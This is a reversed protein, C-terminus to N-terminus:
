LHEFYNRLELDYEDFSMLDNHQGGLIKILQAKPQLQKLHESHSVPILHDEAGHILLIPATVKAIWLDNRFVYRLLKQPFGRLHYGALDKLNTYPSELILGKVNNQSALHTAVGTGISRGYLIINSMSYGSSLAHTLFIQGIELIQQESHISGTSKGYGPYDIIWVDYNYKTFLFQAVQSWSKLSDANGHFYLIVGAPENKKFHLSHIRSTPTEIWVEKFPSTLTFTHNTDLPQPNFIIKEQNWYFAILLVFLGLGGLLLLRTLM